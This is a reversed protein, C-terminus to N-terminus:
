ATGSKRAPIILVSLTNLIVSLDFKVLRFRQSSWELKNYQLIIFFNDLISKMKAMGAIM